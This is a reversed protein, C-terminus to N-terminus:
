ILVKCDQNSNSIESADFDKECVCTLGMSNTLTYGKNSTDSIESRVFTSFCLLQLWLAHLSCNYM